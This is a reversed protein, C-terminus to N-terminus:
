NNLVVVRKVARRNGEDVRVFYVGSVHSRMDIVFKPTNINNFTSIHRGSVDFVHVNYLDKGEFNVSFIGAAPNPSISFVVEDEKPEEVGTPYLASEWIGRGYSAAMIKGASENIVLQSVIVNPLGVFFPQWQTMTSDMYFVANETGAYLGDHANKKFVLCRVGTGNINYTINTLTQGANTSKYVRDGNAGSVTLWVREPDYDSIAIDTVMGSFPITKSTWTLGDNKSVYLVDEYSTYIYDPNSPAVKLHELLGGSALSESIKMWNNGADFSKYVDEYGAYLINSYQPHMAYPTVWAGEISDNPQIYDITYGNDTTRMIGGSQYSFYYTNIDTPDTLTQMGDAGFIHTWVGGQLRNSGNDQGGAVVFNPDLPSTAMRYFQSIGLGESIDVWSLGMDDSYFVGGDSGCFLRSGSFGLYHIDAHTYFSSGDYIWYSCLTWNQGGDFSKWVNIGGVFIENADYPSATIALDYWAQGADDSADTEYGFINPTDSMLTFTDGGDASRYLGGFSYSANSSVVYVVEANAQTVAIELRCTDNPLSLDRIFTSGGDTSRIFYTGSGYIVTTDGPKFQIDTVQWGSYVTAWTQGSNYSRYVGYSTAVFMTTPNLPNFLIKNISNWANVTNMGSPTWTNGGDISKYIGTCKSDFADRDGTGVYVIHSSDPHIAISSVGLHPMTDFTTNWTQGGNISKWLGGSPAGAYIVQSNMSDVCVVNIRGNGPNYGNPGNEWSTIGLPTWASYDAKNGKQQFEETIGQKAKYYSEASTLPGDPFCRPKNVYEWRKFQKYGKGKTYPADGWYDYFFSCIDGYTFETRAKSINSSHMWPQSLALAPVILALLVFLKKKMQHLIHIHLHLFYITKETPTESLTFAQCFILKKKEIAM